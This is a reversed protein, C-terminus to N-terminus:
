LPSKLFGVMFMRTQGFMKICSVAFLLLGIRPSLIEEKLNQCCPPYAFAPMADFLSALPGHEM